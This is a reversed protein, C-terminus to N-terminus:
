TAAVRGVVQGKYEAVFHPDGNKPLFSAYEDIEAEAFAAPVNKRFVALLAEADNPTYPRLTM